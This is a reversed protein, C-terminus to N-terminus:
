GCQSPLSWKSDTRLIVGIGRTVEGPYIGVGQVCYETFPTLGTEDFTFSFPRSNVSVFDYEEVMLMSGDLRCTCRQPESPPTTM